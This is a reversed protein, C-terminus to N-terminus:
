LRNQRLVDLDALDAYSQTRRPEFGRINFLEDLGDSQPIHMNVIYLFCACPLDRFCLSQGILKRCFRLICRSPLCCVIQDLLAEVLAIRLHSHRDRFTGILGNDIRLKRCLCLHLLLLQAIFEPRPQQGVRGADLLNLFVVVPPEIAHPQTFEISRLQGEGAHRIRNGELRMLLIRDRVAQEAAIREKCM